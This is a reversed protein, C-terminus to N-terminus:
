TAAEPACGAPLLLRSASAATVVASHLTAEQELGAVAQMHQVAVAAVVLGHPLHKALHAGVLWESLKQYNIDIPLEQEANPKDYGEGAKRVVRAEPSPSAM